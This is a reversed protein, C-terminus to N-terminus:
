ICYNGNLSDLKHDKYQKLFGKLTDESNLFSENRSLGTIYVLKSILMIKSLSVTSGKKQRGKIHPNLEFFTVFMKAFYWINVSNSEPNYCKFGDKTFENLISSNALPSGDEIKNFNEVIIQGIYEIALPNDIVIKKKGKINLEISIPNYYEVKYSNTEKINTIIGTVLKLLQDKASEGTVVGNICEGYSYDYIFLLLYWFQDIDLGLAIITEQVDKEDLFKQLFTKNIKNRFYRSAFITLSKSTYHGMQAYYENTPDYKNALQEVYGLLPDGEVFYFTKFDETPTKLEQM